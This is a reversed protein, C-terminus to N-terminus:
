YKILPVDSTIPQKKETCAMSFQERSLLKVQLFIQRQTGYM